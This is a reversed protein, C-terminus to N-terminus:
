CCIAMALPARILMLVCDALPKVGDKPGGWAWQGSASITMCSEWPQSMQFGGITQEPTGYDGGDGTRNNILINPQLTRVLKITKVGGGEFMQPMDNWITLLPGYNTILEKIQALLYRNYADLDFKKRKTNGGPSTLPFDPHHWDCM